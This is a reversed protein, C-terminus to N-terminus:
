IETFYKGNDIFEVGNLGEKEIESKERSKLALTGIADNIGNGVCSLYENLIYNVEIPQNQFESSVKSATQLCRLFPSSM